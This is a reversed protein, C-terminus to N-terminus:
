SFPYMGLKEAIVVLVDDEDNCSETEIVLPLLYFLGPVCKKGTLFPILENRTREAGLARALFLCFIVLM